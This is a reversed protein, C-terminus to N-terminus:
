SPEGNILRQIEAIAKQYGEVIGELRVVGSPNYRKADLLFCSNVHLLGELNEKVRILTPKDLSLEIAREKALHEKAEILALLERGKDTLKFKRM